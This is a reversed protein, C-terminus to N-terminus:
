SEGSRYGKKELVAKSKEAAKNLIDGLTEEVALKLRFEFPRSITPEVDRLDAELIPQRGRFVIFDSGDRDPLSIGVRLATQVQAAGPPAVDIQILGGKAGPATRYGDPPASDGVTGTSILFPPQLPNEEVVQRVAALIQEGIRVGIADIEAHSLGGRGLLVPAFQNLREQITPQNQRQINARVMQITDIAREQVFAIFSRFNGGDASELSDLYDAKQDAFIVLPIGPHRYLFTSALARSVRGNGDAFPHIRVFAYHAYSAQLLPHASGFLASALETVLRSMEPGTRDVPAYSFVENTALRVPNNPHHKYEGKPLAQEQMGLDTLVSYSDQSDCLTAHLERIWVETVPRGGTAVDLVYEYGALADHIADRTKTDVVQHMNDWAAASTAVSYTFGREVEYLGEIAGTDVAAWKTAELVARELADSGATAHSDALLNAFSDFSDTQFKTVTWEQFSPFPVYPLVTPTEFSEETM